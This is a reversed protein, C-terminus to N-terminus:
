GSCIGAGEREETEGGDDGEEENGVVVPCHEGAIGAVSSAWAARHCAAWGDDEEEM